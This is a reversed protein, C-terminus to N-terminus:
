LQFPNKNIQDIKNYIKQLGAVNQPNPLEEFYSAAGNFFLPEIGNM